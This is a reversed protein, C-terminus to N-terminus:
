SYMDSLQNQPSCQTHQIIQNQTLCDGIDSLSQLNLIHLSAEIPSLYEDKAMTSVTHGQLFRMKDWNWQHYFQEQYGHQDGCLLLKLILHM